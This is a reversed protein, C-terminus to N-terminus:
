HLQSLAAFLRRRDGGPSLCCRTPASEATRLPDTLMIRGGLLGPPLPQWPAFIPRPQRRPHCCARTHAVCWVFNPRGPRKVHAGTLAALALAVTLRM